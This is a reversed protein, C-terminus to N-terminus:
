RKRRWSEASPCTGFHNTFREGPPDTPKAYEFVPPDRTDDMKFKGKPDSAEDFPARAGNATVGWIIAAHCSRCTNM